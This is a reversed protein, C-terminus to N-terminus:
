SPLSILSGLQKIHTRPLSLPLTLYSPLWFFLPYDPNALSLAGMWFSSFSNPTNPQTPLKLNCFCTQSWKKTKDLFVWRMLSVLVMATTQNYFLLLTVLKGKWEELFWKSVDGWPGQSRGLLGTESWELLFALNFESNVYHFSVVNRTYFDDNWVGKMKEHRLKWKVFKANTWATENWLTM